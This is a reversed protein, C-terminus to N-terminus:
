TSFVFLPEVKTLLLQLNFGYHFLVAYVRSHSLHFHGVIDFTSSIISCSSNVCPQWAQSSTWRFLNPEDLYTKADVLCKDTRHGDIRSRPIYRLLTFVQGCVQIPIRMADKNMLVWFQFRALNRHVPACVYQPINIYHFIMWCYLSCFLAVCIAHNFRVSMILSHLFASM